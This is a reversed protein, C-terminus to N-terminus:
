CKFVKNHTYEFLDAQVIAFTCLKHVYLASAYIPLVNSTQLRQIANCIKYSTCVPVNVMINCM